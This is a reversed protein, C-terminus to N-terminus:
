SIQLFGHASYVSVVPFEKCATMVQAEAHKTYDGDWYKVGYKQRTMWFDHGLERMGLASLLYDDLRALNALFKLCDTSCSNKANESLEQEYCNTEHLNDYETFFLAEYYADLFQTKNIKV